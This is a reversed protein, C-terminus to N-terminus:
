GRARVKVLSQMNRESRLPVLAADTRGWSGDEGVGGDGEGGGGGGDGSDGGDGGGGDGSGDGEGLRGSAGDGESGGGGGPESGDGGDGDRGAHTSSSAFKQWRSTLVNNSLIVLHLVRAKMSVQWSLQWYQVSDDGCGDGEGLGGSGGERDGCDGGGHPSLSAVSQASTLVSMSLIVLHLVVRYMMTQGRLQPYQWEGGGGCGGDGLGCGGKRGGLRGCGGGDGSGNAWRASLSHVLLVWSSRQLTVSFISARRRGEGPGQVNSAEISM